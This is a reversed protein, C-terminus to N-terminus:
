RVSAGCVCRVYNFTWQILRDAISELAATALATPESNGAIPNCLARGRLGLGNISSSAQYNTSDRLNGLVSGCRLRNRVDPALRQISM